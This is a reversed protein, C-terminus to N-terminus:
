KCGSFSKFTISLESRQKMNYTNLIVKKEMALRMPMAMGMTKRLMHM